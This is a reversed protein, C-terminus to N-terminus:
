DGTNDVIKWLDGDGDDSTRKRKSRKSVSSGTTRPKKSRTSKRKNGRRTKVSEGPRHVEEQKDEPSVSVKDQKRESIEDKIKWELIIANRNNLLRIASDERLDRGVTYVGARVGFGPKDVRIKITGYDRIAKLDM